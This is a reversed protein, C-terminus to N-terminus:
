TPESVVGPIYLAEISVVRWGDGRDVWNIAWWSGVRGYGEGDVRVSVQTRASNPGDLVAQRELVRHERIRYPGGLQARVLSLIRDRPMEVAFGSISLRVGEDLMPGLADADAAATVDILEDVRGLVVERDTEVLMPVVFAALALAALVGFAGAGAKLQGRTALGVLAVVGAVALGVWLMTSGEFLLREVLGPEPLPRIDPSSLFEQALGQALTLGGSWHGSWASSLAIDPDLM